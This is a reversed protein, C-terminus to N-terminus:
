PSSHNQWWLMLLCVGTIAGLPVWVYDLPVWRRKRGWKNTRFVLAIALGYVLLFGAL